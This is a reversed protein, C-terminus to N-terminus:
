QKSESKKRGLLWNKGKEALGKISEATRSSTRSLADDDLAEGDFEIQTRAATAEEDSFVNGAGGRGWHQQTGSSARRLVRRPKNADGKYSLTSDRPLSSSSIYYHIYPPPLTHHIPPPPFLSLSLSQSLFHSLLVYPEVDQRLRTEIPDKNPAMNGTGGRGTTVVATKLTPTALDQSTIKRHGSLSMNGAGGRGHSAFQTQAM